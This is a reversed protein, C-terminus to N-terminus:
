ERDTEAGAADAAVVAAAAAAAAAAVAGAMVAALTDNGIHAIRLVASSSACAAACKAAAHSVLCASGLSATVKCLRIILPPLEAGLAPEARPQALEDPEPEDPAPPDDPQDPAPDTAAGDFKSRNSKSAAHTEDDDTETAADVAM